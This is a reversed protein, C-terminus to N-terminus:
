GYIHDKLTRIGAFQDRILLTAATRFQEAFDAETLVGLTGPTIRIRWSEMGRVEITIRGDASRGEAVFEQRLAAYEKERRGIPPPDKTVTRGFATSLAAYYRRVYEARMMRALSVLHHELVSEDVRDYYGPRFTLVVQDHDHLHGTVAGGAVSVSFQMRALLESLESM